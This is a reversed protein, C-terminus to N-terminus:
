RIAQDFDIAEDLGKADELGRVGRLVTGYLNARTFDAGSVDAGSLDARSLDSRTFDTDRLDADILRAFQLLVNRVRAGRLSAGSLNAGNMLPRVAWMRENKPQEPGFIANSLNAGSFDAYDFRSHLRAGSLNAGSFRPAERPRPEPNSTYALGVLSAGELNANSFDTRAVTSLNLNCGKLDAGDLQSESLVTGHLNAGRLQAGKFDLGSLDLFSLDKGALRADGRGPANFLMQTVDRATLDAARAAVGCSAIVCAMALLLLGVQRLPVLAVLWRRAMGAPGFRLLARGRLGVTHKAM